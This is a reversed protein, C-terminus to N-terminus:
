VATAMYKFIHPLVFTLLILMLMLVSTFSIVYPAFRSLGWRNFLRDVGEKFIYGGDFPIMPIANFLGVNINFWGAWFLLHVAGWFQNFPVSFYAMEPTDFGLFRIPMLGFRNDIDLPLILLGLVQFPSRISQISRIVGEGNYYEIGMFGSERDGFGEPWETLTLTHSQLVGNNEVTLTITDGPETTQLVAAVEAPTQVVIGDVNRIISNAPVGAVDAAYNQYIGYVVPESTPVAMGVLLIMLIFCIAGLVLNNTIGAGYMRAKEASRSKEVDEEDPEVFAGIPIVALLLGISKVKINEIRCLIGHGFEHIVITLFLSFWVAFTSPIFENVGPIILVNWPDIANQQQQAVILVVGLILLTAMAVLVVGVIAVGASGYWRLVRRYPIFRDLFAVNQSRIMMIPGYFTVRDAWLGKRQIYGAGLAYLAIFFLAVLVWNM